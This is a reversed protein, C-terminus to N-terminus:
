WTSPNNTKINTVTISSVQWWEHGSLLDKVPSASAMNCVDAKEPAVQNQLESDNVHKVCHNEPTEPQRKKSALPCLQWYQLTIRFIQRWEHGFLLDKVPSATAM